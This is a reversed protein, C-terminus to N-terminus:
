SIRVLGAEKFEVVREKLLFGPPAVVVHRELDFVNGRKDTHNDSVNTWETFKEHIKEYDVGGGSATPVKM